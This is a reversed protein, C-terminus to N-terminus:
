ARNSESALLSTCILEVTLIKNLEILYNHTGATHGMVVKNLWARDFFETCHARPNLLLDRMFEALHTRFWIRYGEFKQRGTIIRELRLGRLKTDLRTLWHPMSYLYIYEVKFQAWALAYVVKDMPQIYERVKGMNTPVDILAPDKGRVYRAQLARTARLEPVVQYMLRVLDNDMYPTRLIVGAQEVSVRGYEHWPIEEAVVRTLPHSKRSIKEFPLAEDLYPLMGPQLLPRPFDESPILRRIRVVESGFKGTLRVPAIGRAVKNFYVDHAGHVDHSGDSRYVSQRAYSPFAELFQEDLRIAQHPLGCMGALKRATRIDYTEGWLGGFTYCPPQQSPGRAALILRTDLGATLSMAVGRPDEMYAPFSRSVTEAFRAHFEEPELATQQEWEAFDFYALKKPVVSGEFDWSSAGPLLSIDKFLTKNEMVCNSRLYQALSGPDLSRLSPRIRLLAKAESAFIFEDKGEHVYVRGMGYRDNFLTIKHHRLDVALGCFWGNLSKFFKEPSELYLRFLSQPSGDRKAERDPPGSKRLPSFHEGVIILAVQRDPSILPMCEALSGPHGLWGAYIGADRNVYQGVVYFPEHRMSEVMLGLDHGAGESAQRRIIGAIGPM